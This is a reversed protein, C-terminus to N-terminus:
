RAKIVVSAHIEATGRRWGERFEIRHNPIVSRGPQTATIGVLLEQGPKTGLRMSTGEAPVLRTCYRRAYRDPMGYGSGSVGEAALAVPDLHCVAYEVKVAAGDNTINPEIRRIDIVGPEASQGHELVTWIRHGVARKGEIGYGAEFAREPGRLFWTTPAILAVAAVVLVLPPIQRRSPRSAMASRANDADADSRHTM